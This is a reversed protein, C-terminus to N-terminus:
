RFRHRAALALHDCEARVNSPVSSEYSHLTADWDAGAQTKLAERLAEDTAHKDASFAQLAGYMALDALLTDALQWAKQHAPQNLLKPARGAVADRFSKAPRFRVRYRGDVLSRRGSRIDRVVRPASWGQDFTGVGPVRIANGAQAERRLTEALEKLVARVQVNSAQTEEALHRVLDDYKM